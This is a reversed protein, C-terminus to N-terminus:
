RQQASSRPVSLFASAHILADAAIRQVLQGSVTALDGPPGSSLPLRHTVLDHSVSRDAAVVRVEATGVLALGGTMDLNWALLTVALTPAGASDVLRLDANRGIEAHLATDLYRDPDSAWLWVSDERLEGNPLATLLRRGIHGRAQTDLLRVALAGPADVTQASEALQPELLRSQPSDPRKLQCSWLGLCVAAFALRRVVCNRGSM